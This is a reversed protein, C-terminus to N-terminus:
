GSHRSIVTISHLPMIIWAFLCALYAWAVFRNKIKVHYAEWIFLSISIATLFCFLLMVPLFAIGAARNFTIFFNQLRLLPIFTLYEMLPDILVIIVRRPMVSTSAYWVALGYLNSSKKEIQGMNSILFIPLSQFSNEANYPHKLLSNLERRAAGSENHSRGSM